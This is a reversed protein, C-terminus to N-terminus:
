LSLGPDEVIFEPKGHKAYSKKEQTFLAGHKSKDYYGTVEIRAVDMIGSNTFTKIKGYLKFDYDFETFEGYKDKPAIVCYYAVKDTLSDPHAGSKLAIKEELQKLSIDPVKKGLIGRWGEARIAPLEIDYGVRKRCDMGFPLNYKKFSVNESKLVEEIVDFIEVNPNAMGLNDSITKFVNGM